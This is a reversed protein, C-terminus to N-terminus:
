RCVPSAGLLQAGDNNYVKDDNCYSYTGSNGHSSSHNSYTSAPSYTPATSSACGFTSNACNDAFEGASPAKFPQSATVLYNGGAGASASPMVTPALAVGGSVGHSSVPADSYRSSGTYGTSTSVAGGTTYVPALDTYGGGTYGGGTYGGGTYGGLVSQTGTAISGTSVSGGTASGWTGNSWGGQNGTATGWTGDGIGDGTDYVVGAPATYGANVSSGNNSSQTGVQSNNGYNINVTEAQINPLSSRRATRKAMKGHGMTGHGMTGHGTSHTSGHNHGSNHGSNHSAHHATSAYNHTSVSPKPATYHDREIIVLKSTPAKRASGRLVVPNYGHPAHVGSTGIYDQTVSSGLSSGYRSSGGLTTGRLMPLGTSAGQHNAHHTSNHTHLSPGALTVNPAAITVGSFAQSLPMFTPTPAFAPAFNPLPAPMPAPVTNAYVASTVSGAPIFQTGGFPVPPLGIPPLGVPPMFGIPAGMMPAGMMPANAGYRTNGGSFGGGNFGSPGIGIPGMGVPGAGMNGYRSRRAAVANGALGGLVAGIATGQQRNGSGALNSGIAGGLGAGITTGLLTNGTFGPNFTGAYPNGGYRSNRNGYAAGALGGLAAGIATGEQRNGSGALNSGIAGGLGSGIAGALLTNNDFGGFLQAHATVPTLLLAATAVTLSLHKM